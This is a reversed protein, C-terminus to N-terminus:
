KKIRRKKIASSFYYKKLISETKQSYKLMIINKTPTNTTLTSYLKIKIM